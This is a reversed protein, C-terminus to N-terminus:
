RDQSGAASDLLSGSPLLHMMAPAGLEGVLTLMRNQEVVHLLHLGARRDLMVGSTAHGDPGLAEVDPDDGRALARSIVTLPNGYASYSYIVVVQGGLVAIRAGRLDVGAGEALPLPGVGPLRTQLYRQIKAPTGTVEPPPDAQHVQLMQRLSDESRVAGFPSREVMAGAGLRGRLVEGADGAPDSDLRASVRQINAQRGLAQGALQTPIRPAQQVQAAAGPLRQPVVAAQLGATQAVPQPAQTPVTAPLAPMLGALDAQREGRHDGPLAQGVVVVTVAAALFLTAGVTRQVRRREIQDLSACVRGRLEASSCRMSAQPNGRSSAQQLHRAVLDRMMADRAVLQRCCTCHQLHEEFEGRERGDFEADLYTFAFKQIDQCNM